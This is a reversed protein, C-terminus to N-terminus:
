RRPNGSQVRPEFRWLWARSANHSSKRRHAYAFHHQRTTLHLCTTRDYYAGPCQCPQRCISVKPLFRSSFDGHRHIRTERAEKAERTSGHRTKTSETTPAGRLWAQSSRHKRLFYSSKVFHLNDAHFCEGAFMVM